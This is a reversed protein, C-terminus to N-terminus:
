LEIPQVEVRFGSSKEIEKSLSAVIGGPEKSKDRKSFDYPFLVCKDVAVDEIDTTNPDLNSIESYEKRNITRYVYINDSIITVFVPGFEDKWTGLQEETIKTEELLAKKYKELANEEEKKVEEAM